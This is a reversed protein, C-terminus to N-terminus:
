TKHIAKAKIIISLRKTKNSAKKSRGLLLADDFFNKTVFSSTIVTQNTIDDTLSLTWWGSLIM